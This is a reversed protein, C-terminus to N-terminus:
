AGLAPPPAQLVYATVPGSELQCRVEQLRGLHRLVTLVSKGTKDLKLSTGDKLDSELFWHSGRM